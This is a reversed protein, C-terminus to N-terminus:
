RYALGAEPSTLTTNAGAITALPAVNGSAGAAFKLISSPGTGLSSSQLVYMNGAGDLVMNTPCLLGTARGRSHRRRRPPAPRVQRMTASRTGPVILSWCADPRISSRVATRQESTRST